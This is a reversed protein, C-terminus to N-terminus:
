RTGSNCVCVPMAVVLALGGWTEPGVCSARDAEAEDDIVEAYFVDSFLMGLM